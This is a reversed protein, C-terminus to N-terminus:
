RYTVHASRLVHKKQPRISWPISFDPLQAYTDLLKEIQLITDKLWADRSPTSWNEYNDTGPECNQTACTKAGEEVISLRATLQQNLFQIGDILRKRFDFNPNLRLLISESFSRKEIMFEPQYQETSYFPHAKGELTQWTGNEQVPWRLKLFGGKGRKQNNM